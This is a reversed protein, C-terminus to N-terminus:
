LADPVLSVVRDEESATRIADFIRSLELADAPQIPFTREGRVAQAIEEYIRHEDGYLAGEIKEQITEAKASKMTGFQTPDDPRDPINKYITLNQGRVVITGRDGQIFWSPLDEVAITYETQVITGDTLTMVALFLDEADGPNITQKMRGYVSQVPSGMLVVPPDVLHPGWNLLYGGGYRRETQWDCRTAFSCVTHRVLFIDGIAKEAVLQQLRQLVCGWRAPLWPLLLKGSAEASAVMCRAEDANVAWPKTVLVHVGAALCDCTMLSHQDSRTIICILDLEEKELMRHYDDYIACGFREAAQKQREPDIDCVAVMEFADNQEIAGAHMASGSRGYGLIATRIKKM